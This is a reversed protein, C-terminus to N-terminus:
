HKIWLGIVLSLLLACILVGYLSNCSETLSIPDNSHVPFSSYAYTSEVNSYVYEWVNCTVKGSANSTVVRESHDNSAANSSYVTVVFWENSSMSFQSNVIPETKSFFITAGYQQWYNNNTSTDTHMFYYPYESSYYSIVGECYERLESNIM